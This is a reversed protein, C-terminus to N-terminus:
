TRNFIDTMYLTRKNHSNDLFCVLQNILLFAAIFDSSKDLLIRLSNMLIQSTKKNYDDLIQNLNEKDSKNIKYIIFFSENLISYLQNKEKESCYMYITNIKNRLEDVAKKINVEFEKFTINGYLFSYSQKTINDKLNQYDILYSKFAEAKQEFIYKFKIEAKKTYFDLVIKLLAGFATLLVVIQSWNDILFKM